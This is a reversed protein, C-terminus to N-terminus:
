ELGDIKVNVNGTAKIFALIAKNTLEIKEFEFNQLSGNIFVGKMPSYNNLYRLVNQKGEELNPQISYRCNERIKNLITGQALWNATKLLVSKTNLVYDLQDFYVEKTTTNYQPFGSLYITGNVSGLIDLAIIMKDNKHWLTVKQIKIKKNGSGFEQGAFNKSIIKSADTYSSIGIINAVIKNPMKSVPKLAIKDRNFKKVPVTGIITELSCKLGMDLSIQDKNLKAETTYLEVPVLRFWSEYAESMQFPTALKDLADLVNPKFDMSKKIAEDINKEIKSKFLRIAPTVLYTIPLNKGAISVTPSETWDLDQINTNTKLQWNNLGVDSILTVVGNLHFERTDYLKMGLATTGYRYKIHSKLPLTTKIKGNEFVITIPALKWVTIAIDDDEIDKDEYIIGNLIKNTQNEIDQLQIVVPLHMFSTENEYLIPNADDPEPKLADIKQVTACSIMTFIIILFLLIVWILKM